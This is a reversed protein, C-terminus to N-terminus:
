GREKSQLFAAMFHPAHIVTLSSLTLATLGGLFFWAFKKLLVNYPSKSVYDTIIEQLGLGGHYASLLFVIGLLFTNHPLRSWLLVAEYSSLDVTFLHFFFWGYLGILVIATLRQVYWHYVSQKM